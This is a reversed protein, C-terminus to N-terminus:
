AADLEDIDATMWLCDWFSENVAIWLAMRFPNAALPLLRPRERQVHRHRLRM